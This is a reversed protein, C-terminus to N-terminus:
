EMLEIYGIRDSGSGSWWVRNPHSRDIEIRRIDTDPSPVPFEVFSSTKPDFRGIKDAYRESFWIVNKTEDVDMSYPGSDPTPTAYETVKGTRYEVKMIKGAEHAGVWLNGDADAAMRRLDAQRTPVKYRTLKGTNIDLRVVEDGYNAVYWLMKDGGIALGYPHTGKPVPFETVKRTNTDLRVIRSSTIGTGWVTGDPYFRLTNIASGGSNPPAPISFTNFERSKTNYQILRANPGNEMSWVVDKPDVAIANLGSEKFKGAPTPIRSYALTKPDFRGIMGVRESVWAIGQSDVAIDHPGAKKTLNFEMTVYKAGLGKVLASPLNRNPDDVEGAAAGMRPADAGYNKAVYDVISNKEQDSLTIRQDLLYAGMTEVIKSWEERSMRTPVVRDMGHCLTCRTILLKKADGEPMMKEYEAESIKARPPSIKLPASLVLDLKAQAGSKVEVPAGADSQHDGALAQVTYRGPLISPTSFRGQAQSVVMWSMGLDANRIKVFAGAVPEDAASKVIGSITGTNQANALMGGSALLALVLMAVGRSGAWGIHKLV